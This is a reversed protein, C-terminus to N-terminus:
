PWTFFSFSVNGFNRTKSFNTANDMLTRKGHEIILIGEPNLLHRQFVTDAISHHIALDFPPDAIIIDFIAATRQLFHLCDSNVVSLQTELNLSQANKQLFSCVRSNKDVATISSAGRSLFEFSLNGTGACLDLIRMNEFDFTNELINFLGEKAFDTTPRSPFGTPVRFTRGKLTGSIIRM